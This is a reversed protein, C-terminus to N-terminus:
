SEWSLVTRSNSTMLNAYAIQARGLVISSRTFAADRVRTILDNSLARQLDFTRALSIESDPAFQADFAHSGARSIRILETLLELICSQFTLNFRGSKRHLLSWSLLLDFMSLTM